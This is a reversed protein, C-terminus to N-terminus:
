RSAREHAPVPADEPDRRFLHHFPTAGTTM